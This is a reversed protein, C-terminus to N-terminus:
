PEQQLLKRIPLREYLYTQSGSMSMSPGACLERGAEAHLVPLNQTTCSRRDWLAGSEQPARESPTRDHDKRKSDIPNRNKVSKKTLLSAGRCDGINKTKQYQLVVVCM